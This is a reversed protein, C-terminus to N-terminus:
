SPQYLGTKQHLEKVVDDASRSEDHVAKWLEYLQVTTIMLVRDGSILKVADQSFSEKMRQRPDLHLETNAVILLHDNEQPTGTTDKLYEWAQSLKNSEKGITGRIGTVEIGFGLNLKPHTAEWDINAGEPTRELKLGLKSLLLAVSDELEPGTGYLVYAIQDYESKVQKLKEVQADVDRAEQVMQDAVWEPADGTAIHRQAREFYRLAMQELNNMSLMYQSKDLLPPPLVVLNGKGSLKELGVVIETDDVVALRTQSPSEPSFIIQHYRPSNKLYEEVVRAQGARTPKINVGDNDQLGIEFEKLWDYVRINNSIPFNPSDPICIITRGQDLALKADRHLKTISQHYTNSPPVPTTHVITVDYDFASFRLVNPNGLDWTDIEVGYNPTFRVESTSQQSTHIIKSLILLRM